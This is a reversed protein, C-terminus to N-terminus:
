RSTFVKGANRSAIYRGGLFPVVIKIPFTVKFSSFINWSLTFPECPRHGRKDDHNTTYNHAKTSSSLAKNKSEFVLCQFYFVNKCLHPQM